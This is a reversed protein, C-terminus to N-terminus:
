RMLVRVLLAALLAPPMVVIGVRFFRWFGIPERDRRISALWLLTALSGTIALNPGLDVGILFSDSIRPSAHSMQLLSRAILGTPLNNVVNCVLGTIGGASLSTVTESTTAAHRLSDALAQLLTTRELAAVMVFLGAVFPLISWQVERLITWPARRQMVAICLITLGGLLATPLGLPVGLASVVLLALVTAAIGALATWGEISLRAQELDCECRKNLHRRQTWHLTIFTLVIAAVSPIGLRLLWAGLPPLRDGYVVLNAPNSIPLAFSAANAIFACIFLLPLPEIKAKRTVALVAPTLVVATADNSLFVTIVTGTAYVLGFLRRASGRAANVAYTAVWDFLGEQRAAESLLMMGLLFLYVDDGKAVAGVAASVPLVGLVVLAAGGGVAWVAETVGFPRTVIALTAASAIVIASLDGTLVPM